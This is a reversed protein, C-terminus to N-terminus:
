IQDLGTLAAAGQEGGNDRDIGDVGIEIDIFSRYQTDAVQDAFAFQFRSAVDFPGDEQTQGVLFTIRVFSGDIENVILDIRFGAGKAHAAHKAVLVLREGLSVKDANANWDSM